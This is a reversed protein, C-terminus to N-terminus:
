NEFTDFLIIALTRYMGTLFTNGTGALVYVGTAWFIRSSALGNVQFESLHRQKSEHASLLELSLALRFYYATSSFGNKMVM